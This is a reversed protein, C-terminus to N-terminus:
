SCGEVAGVRLPGELGRREISLSKLAELLAVVGLEADVREEVNVDAEVSDAVM